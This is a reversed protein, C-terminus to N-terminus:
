VRPPHHKLHGARWEILTYKATVADLGPGAAIEELTREARPDPLLHGAAWLRVSADPRDILPILAELACPGRERIELHLRSLEDAAEHQRRLDLLQGADGAASEYQAVLEELSCASLDRPMAVRYM